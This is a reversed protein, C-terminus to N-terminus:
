TADWISRILASATGSQDLHLGVKMRWTGLFFERDLDAETFGYLIPQHITSAEDDFVNEGRTEQTFHYGTVHRAGDM